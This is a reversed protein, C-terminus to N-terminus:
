KAPVAKPPAVITLPQKQGGNGNGNALAAKKDDTLGKAMDELLQDAAKRGFEFQAKLNSRKWTLADPSHAAKRADVRYVDLTSEGKLRRIENKQMFARYSAQANAVITDVILQTFGDWLTEPADILARYGLVDLIVVDKVTKLNFLGEYPVDSVAAGEIYWDGEFQHPPYLFPFAMASHFADVTIEKDRSHFWRLRKETVNYAVMEFQQKLQNAKEFDVAETVWPTPACMGPATGWDLPAPTMAAWAFQVMDSWLCFADSKGQQDLVLKGFPTAAIANRFADALTGPKQFVKYNVPYFQYIEDSVGSNTLNELAELPTRGKPALAVLAVLAGAGSATITEFRELEKKEILRHLVGAMFTANPAGGGIVLAKGM